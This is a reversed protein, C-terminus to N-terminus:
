SQTSVRLSVIDDTFFHVGLDGHIQKNGTYWHAFNDVHFWKSQLVQLNRIDSRAVSRWIPFTYDMM